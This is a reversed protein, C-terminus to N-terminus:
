EAGGSQDTTQPAGNAARRVADVLKRPDGSFVPLDTFLELVRASSGFLRDALEPSFDYAVHFEGGREFRNSSKVVLGALQPLLVEPAMRSAQLITPALTAWGPFPIETTQETQASQVRRAGWTIRYLTYPPAGRLADILLEPRNRYTQVLLQWLHANAKKVLRAGLERDPWDLLGGGDTPSVFFYELENALHPNPIAASLARELVAWIDKQKPRDVRFNSILMRWIPILAPPHGTPWQGAEAWDEPNETVRREVVPIVLSLLRRGSLLHGFSEAQNSQSGELLDILAGDDDSTLVRLVPQDRDTADLEPVALFRVWYRDIHLGQPHAFPGRHGLFVHDVIVEVARAQQVDLKLAALEAGFNDRVEKRANADQQHGALGRWHRRITAFAEPATDRVLQMLLLDDFDIEGALQWWSSLAHRLGQKLARPTRCLAAAAERPSHIGTGYQRRLAGILPDDNWINREKADAPDIFNMPVLSLCGRQFARLVRDAETTTLLPVEEVFRAIKETDFRAHLTTTATIVSISTLRSLGHLLARLPALRRSHELDEEDAGNGAFRELDEVWVVFRHGITTAIRDVAQLVDFPTGPKGVLKAVATPISGATGMAALYRDPVGRAALVSAERSVGDLLTRLVGEVAATPTDFPWLEVCVVHTRAESALEHEVFKRLTTKGAGLAGLIAQAPVKGMELRRAIRRAIPLRQFADDRPHPVPDDNELWSRLREWSAYLAVVEDSGAPEAHAETDRRAISISARIAAAAFVALAFSCWGLPVVADSDLRLLARPSAFRALGLLLLFCGSAGAFWAPPYLHLNRVGLRTSLRRDRREHWYWLVAALVGAALVWVSTEALRDLWNAQTALIVFVLTAGAVGMAFVDIWRRLILTARKM